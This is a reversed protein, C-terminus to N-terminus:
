GFVGETKVSNIAKVRLTEWPVEKGEAQGIKITRSENPLLDFFNDEIVLQEMDMEITVMRALMNTSVTLENKERDISVTVESDELRLDKQDRFYYFNEDTKNSKSRIVIVAEEPQLGSLAEQELVVDVQQSVNAPVSVMWQKSFVKEGNFQYVALEIEDEYTELRDNVV